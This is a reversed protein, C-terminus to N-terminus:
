SAWIGIGLRWAIRCVRKKKACLLTSRSLHCHFTFFDFDRTFSFNSKKKPGVLFSQSHSNLSILRKLWGTWRSVRNWFMILHWFLALPPQFDLLVHNRENNPFSWLDNNYSAKQTKGSNIPALTINIKKAEGNYDM